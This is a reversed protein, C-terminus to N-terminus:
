LYLCILLSYKSFNFLFPGRPPRGLYNFSGLLSNLYKLDKLGQLKDIIQDIDKTEEEEEKEDKKPEVLHM